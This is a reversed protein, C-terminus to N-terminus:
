GDCDDVHYVGYGDEARIPPALGAYARETAGPETVLVDVGYRDLIAGAEAPELDGETVARNDAQRISETTIHEYIDRWRIRAANGPRASQRGAYAVLRYGTVSFIPVSLRAPAAVVCPRTGGRGVLSVVAGPEGALTEEVAPSPTTTDDLGFSVRAVLPVTLALLVGGALMALTRSRDRLAVLLDAAGLGAYVAVALELLPWYRRARGLVLFGEGLLQPVAASAAVTLAAGVLLAAPVAAGPERIARPLWRVMGFVALPIVTGWSLLVGVPSPDPANLITTNVFGGLRAYSAGLPVVWLAWLGIAPALLAAARRPRSIPGPAACLLAAAALGIFFAEPSTLGALGLIAGAAALWAARERILGAAAAAAFGVLLTFAVDRPLAPALGHWAANYTLRPGGVQPTAELLRSSVFTVAGLGAALSATVTAAAGHLWRGAVERGLAFLGLAAGAVQLLQMPGLAHFATGGPTFRTVMALVGHFLWPYYNPVAGTIPATPTSLGNLLQQTWGTHWGTDAAPRGLPFVEAVPAGWVPLSLAAVTTVAVIAARGARAVPARRRRLAADALLGALLAGTVGRVVAANSLVAGRTLIHAVTLVLAWGCLAPFALAWRHIADARGRRLIADAILFGLALLAAAVAVAQGAVGPYSPTM